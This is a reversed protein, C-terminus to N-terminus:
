GGGSPLSLEGWLVAVSFKRPSRTSFIARKTSAKGRQKLRIVGPCKNHLNIKGQAIFRVAAKFRAGNVQIM